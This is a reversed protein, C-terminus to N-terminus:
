KQSLWAILEIHQETEEGKLEYRGVFFRHSLDTRVIYIENHYAYAIHQGDPSWIFSSIDKIGAKIDKALLEGTVDVDRKVCLEGFRSVYALATGDPSWKNTEGLWWRSIVAGNDNMLFEGTEEKDDLKVDVGSIVVKGEDPGPGRIKGKSHLVQTEGTRINVSCISRNIDDQPSFQLILPARFDDFLINNGDASWLLHRIQDEIVKGDRYHGRRHRALEKSNSGDSHVLYLDGNTTYAIRAGDYAWAIYGESNGQPAEIIKAVGGDDISLVCLYNDPSFFALQNRDPSLDFGCWLNTANIDALETLKTGDLNIAYLFSHGQLGAAFLIKDESIAELESPFKEPTTSAGGCGAFLGVLLILELLLIVAHFFKDKGM